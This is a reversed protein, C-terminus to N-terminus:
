EEEIYRYKAKKRGKGLNLKGYTPTLSHCNPCLLSLNEESHNEPNGDVHEVQLPIKGTKINVRNWGCSTCKSNFKEFLYRRIYSSVQGWGYGKQGDNLGKKWSLIYANYRFEAICTNNCFKNKKSTEKNCFLCKM